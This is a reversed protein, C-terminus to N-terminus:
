FTRSVPGHIALPLGWISPSLLGYIPRHESIARTGPKANGREQCKPITSTHHMTLTDHPTNPLRFAFAFDLFVPVGSAFANLFACGDRPRCDPGRISYLGVSLGMSAFLLGYIPRCVPGYIRIPSQLFSYLCAWLHSCVLGHISRCVRGYVPM